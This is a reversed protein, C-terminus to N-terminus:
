TTCLGLNILATRLNNALTQTTAADTAAAGISQQIAPTAGFFGIARNTSNTALSLVTALTNQTSGTTSAPAVQFNIAGGAGTGTGRSGAFTWTAGSTNSTGAAVNQVSLTQAVPSAADTSGMAWNAAAARRLITDRTSFADSDASGFGFQGSPSLFLQASSSVVGLFALRNGPSAPTGSRIEFGAGAISALGSKDALSSFHYNSFSGRAWAPFSSTTGGISIGGDSEVRFKSAGAVQADILNGAFGTAANVGLGTGSTSWGTSTTGSPEILALPKTTTATGGTIWTGTLAITPTSLAGNKSYIWNGTMTPAISQSLAPAADARMFSTSVGDVATLGVSASPNAAAPISPTGSLDSYAGSTAVTALSSSNAKLNLASQLDTQSSLTGTISGWTGGSTGNAAATVRGKNDVTINASTYSGATVGSTALRAADLTGSTLSSASTTASPSQTIVIYGTTDKAIITSM